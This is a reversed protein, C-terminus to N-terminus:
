PLNPSDGGQDELIVKPKVVVAAPCVAGTAGQLYVHTQGTSIFSSAAQFPLVTNNIMAPWCVGMFPVGIVFLAKM